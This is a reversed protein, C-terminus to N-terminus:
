DDECEVNDGCTLCLWDQEEIVNGKCPLNNCSKRKITFTNSCIPCYLITSQPTNPKLYATKPILSSENSRCSEYCSPCIYRRQTKPIEFYKEVKSKGLLDFVLAFEQVHFGDVHDTSHLKAIPDNELYKKRVKAWEIKTSNNSCIWLVEEIVQLITVAIRRDITHIISNRTKRLEDIRESFEASYRTPCVTNAVKVLDHADITKFDAFARDEKDCKSPWEKPSASILIYPSVASIQGKILFEIGQLVLSYAASLRRKASKWYEDEIDGTDVGFSEAESLDRLLNLSIDWATNFLDLGSDMFEDQTPINEIL